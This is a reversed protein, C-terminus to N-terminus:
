IHSVRPWKQNDHKNEEQWLGVPDCEGEGGQEGESNPIRNIPKEGELRTYAADLM